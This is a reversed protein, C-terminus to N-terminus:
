AMRLIGLVNDTVRSAIDAYPGHEQANQREREATQAHV